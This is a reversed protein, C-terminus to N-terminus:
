GQSASMKEREGESSHSEFFIVHKSNISNQFSTKFLAFSRLRWRSQIETEQSCKLDWKEHLCFDELVKHQSDWLAKMTFM